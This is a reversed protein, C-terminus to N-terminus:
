DEGGHDHEMVISDSAALTNHITNGFDIADKYGKSWGDNLGAGYAVFCFILIAGAYIADSLIDSM